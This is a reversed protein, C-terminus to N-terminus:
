KKRKYPDIGFIAAISRGNLGMLYGFTCVAIAPLVALLLMIPHDPLTLQIVGLYMGDFFRAIANTVGYLNCAWLPDGLAADTINVYGIIAFVALLINVANALLSCWTLRFPCRQMRGSEVRVQDVTGTEWCLSYLLYMYFLIAFVSAGFLLADNSACAMSLILGFVTMGFQYIMMKIVLYINDHLFGKLTQFKSM